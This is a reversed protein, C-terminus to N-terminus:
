CTCVNLLVQNCWCRVAHTESLCPCSLICIKPIPTTALLCPNIFAYTVFSYNDLTLPINGRLTYLFLDKQVIKKLESSLHESRTGRVSAMIEELYVDCSQLKIIRNWNYCRCQLIITGSPLLSYFANQFTILWGLWTLIWM